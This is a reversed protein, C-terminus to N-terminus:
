YLAGLIEDGDTIPMGLFEAMPPHAAPWGGFDPHRRIDALRLPVPERLLLALLGHQRPVPGIARWQEDSVGDVVFEAFSGDADPVGLAAYECSLLRRASSVITQLVERVSLHATVALVAASVAHLEARDCRADPAAGPESARAASRHSAAGARESMVCVSGVRADTAARDITAPGLDYGRCPRPGIAAVPWAGLTALMGTAITVPADRPSPRASAVPRAVAPQCRTSS